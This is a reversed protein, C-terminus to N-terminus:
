AAQEPETALSLVAAPTGDFNLGLSAFLAAKTVVTNVGVRVVKFPLEGRRKLDFAKSRSMGWAKGAVELPFSVPLALLDEVSMQIPAAGAADAM